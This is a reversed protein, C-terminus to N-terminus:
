RRGVGQHTVRAAPNARYRKGRDRRGSARRRRRRGGPRNGTGGAHARGSGRCCRCPPRRGRRGRGNATRSNAAFEVEVVIRDGVVANALEDQRRDRIPEVHEVDARRLDAFVADLHQAMDQAILHHTLDAHSAVLRLLLRSSKILSLVTVGTKTFSLSQFAPSVSM